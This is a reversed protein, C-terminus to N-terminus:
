KLTKAKKVITLFESKFGYEDKLNLPKVWDNIDDLDAKGKFKSDRLQLSFSAVGAVFRHFESSQDFDIGEDYVDLSTPISEDADPLKYRFDISLSPNSKRFTAAPIIEYLATINQNSGIEGADKTDDEFDQNELIRNEYGILRYERINAENFDVQIKVDKAVTLFKSFGYLFVKELQKDNDIYEYTGNGKNAIQELTEDNLNGRGVGLVTLFIGKDRKAEILKILEDKDSIGINFDGDTGVIIRNNGGDIFNEEAIEYASIIGEAGATGGGASLKNIASEISRRQDGRASRLLVESRGAYTVISIRDQSDTNELMKQFGEKLLELKDPSQMSGSVDILFVYNSASFDELPVDQGKIGIRILKHGKAWPCTSIEGHLSIPHDTTEHEYDLDFYNIFEETRIAGPPPIMEDDMIFRRVNAYSAGDADISFTSIPESRVEVFPNEELDAYRDGATPFSGGGRNTFASDANNLTLISEHSEQDKDCSILCISLALLFLFFKLKM